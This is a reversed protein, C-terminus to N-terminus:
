ASEQLDRSFKLDNKKKIKLCSYVLMRFKYDILYLCIFYLIASTLIAPGLKPLLKWISAEPKIPYILRVGVIALSAILFKTTYKAMLRYPLNIHFEKKLLQDYAATTTALTLCYLIGWSLVLRIPDNSFTYSVIGLATLYILTMLSKLIPMKFLVTERLSNNTNFDRTEFGRLSTALLAFLLQLFSSIAFVRIAWSVAVYKLNYVAAIPETYVILGIISPIALLSAIWFAELIDNVDRKALLRAYLAPLVQTSVATIGVLSMSVGYYAIPEENGFIGRVIFADLVILVNTFSNFLPLWSKRVWDKVTNLNLKSKKIVSRDVHYLLVISAFRGVIVSAIAGLFGLRLIIVLLFASVVQFTKLFVNSFGTYEPAHASAISNLCRDIYFQFVIVLAVLLYNLPQNFLISAGFAIGTYILSAIVGLLVALFLGTKATNVGRSITRPIWYTFIVTFPTVYSIYRFVLTWLGFEIVTLRRAIFVTFILGALLSLFKSLSNVLTAYRLRVNAGYAKDIM